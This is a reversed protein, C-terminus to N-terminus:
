PRITILNRAVSLSVWGSRLSGGEPSWAEIVDYSGVDLNAIAVVDLGPDPAELASKALVMAEHLTYGGLASPLDVIVIIPNDRYAARVLLRRERQEPSARGPDLL